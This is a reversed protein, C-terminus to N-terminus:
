AGPTRSDAPKGEVGRLLTPGLAFRFPKGVIIVIPNLGDFLCARFERVRLRFDGVGILLM